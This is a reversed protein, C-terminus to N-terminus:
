GIYGGNYDHSGCTAMPGEAIGPGPVALTPLPFETISVSSSRGARRAAVAGSRPKTQPPGAALERSHRALSAPLSRIFPPSVFV